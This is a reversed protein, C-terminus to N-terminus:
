PPPSSGSHAGVVFRIVRGLREYVAHLAVTEMGVLNSDDITTITEGIDLASIEEIAERVQEVSAGTEEAILDVSTLSLAIDAAVDIRETPVIAAVRRGNITLYTIQGAHDARNM